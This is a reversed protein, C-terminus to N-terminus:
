ILTRRPEKSPKGHRGTLSLYGTSMFLIDVHQELKKIEECIHDVEKIRSFQGEIFIFTGMPNIVKLEDIIHHAKERSRGIIYARPGNTHKAFTRLTGLGIGATAGAFVAVLGPPLSQLTLNSSRIHKLNVM